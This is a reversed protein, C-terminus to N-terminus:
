LVQQGEMYSTEKKLTFPLDKCKKSSYNLVIVILAHIYHYYMNQYSIRSKQKKYPYQM